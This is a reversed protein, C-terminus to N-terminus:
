GGKPWVSLIGLAVARVVWCATRHRTPSPQLRSPSYNVYRVTGVQGLKLCNSLAEGWSGRLGRAPSPGPGRAEQFGEGKGGETRWSSSPRGREESSLRHQKQPLFKKGRWASPQACRLWVGWGSSLSVFDCVPTLPANKATPQRSYDYRKIFVPKPEGPARVEQPRTSARPQCSPYLRPCSTASTVAVGM